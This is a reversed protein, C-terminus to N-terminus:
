PFIQSAPPSSKRCPIADPFCFEDLAPPLNRSSLWTCSEPGALAPFSNWRDDTLFKIQSKETCGRHERHRQPQHPWLVGCLCLSCLPQVSFFCNSTPLHTIVI